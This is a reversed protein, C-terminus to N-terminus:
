VLFAYKRGVLLSHTVMQSRFCQSEEKWEAMEGHIKGNTVNVHTQLLVYVMIIVNKHVCRYLAITAVGAEKALVPILFLATEMTFVNKNAFQLLVIMDQGVKHANVSIQDLVLETTSAVGSSMILASMLDEMGHVMFLQKEIM